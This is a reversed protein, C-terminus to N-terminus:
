RKANMRDQRQLRRRALRRMALRGSRNSLGRDEQRGEQFGLRRMNAAHRERVATPFDEPNDLQFWAVAYTAGDSGPEGRTCTLLGCECLEILASQLEGRKFVDRTGNM